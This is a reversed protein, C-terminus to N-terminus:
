GERRRRAEAEVAERRRRAKEAQREAAAAEWRRMREWERPDGEAIQREALERAGDLTLRIEM